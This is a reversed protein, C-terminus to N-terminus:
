IYNLLKFQKEVGNIIQNSSYSEINIDNFGALKCNAEIEDVDLDQM